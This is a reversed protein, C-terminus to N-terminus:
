RCRRLIEGREIELLVAMPEISRRRPAVLTVAGVALLVCGSVILMPKHRRSM